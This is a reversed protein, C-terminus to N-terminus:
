VNRQKGTFYTTSISLLTVERQWPLLIEQDCCYPRRRSPFFIIPKYLCFLLKARARARKKYMELGDICSQSVISEIERVRKVFYM